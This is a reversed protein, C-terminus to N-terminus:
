FPCTKPNNEQPTCFTECNHIFGDRAPTYKCYATSVWSGRRPIRTVKVWSVQVTDAGQYHCSVTGSVSNPPSDLKSNHFFEAKWSVDYLAETKAPCDALGIAPLLLLSIYVFKMKM